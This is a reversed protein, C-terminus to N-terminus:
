SQYLEWQWKRFKYEEIIEKIHGKVLDLSDNAYVVILRSNPVDPMAKKIEEFNVAKLGGGGHYGRIDNGAIAVVSVCSGMPGTEMYKDGQYIGTYKQWRGGLFQQTLTM